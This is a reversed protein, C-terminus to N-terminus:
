CIPSPPGRFDDNKFVCFQYERALTEMIGVNINRTSHTYREELELIREYIQDDLSDVSLIGHLRGISDRIKKIDM